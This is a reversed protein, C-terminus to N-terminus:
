RGHAYDAIVLGELVHAKFAQEGAAFPGSVGTSYDGGGYVALTAGFCYCTCLGRAPRHRILLKM